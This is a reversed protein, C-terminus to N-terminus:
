AAVRGFRRRYDSPSIGAKRQFLERFFAPDLYGVRQGIEVLEQRLPLIVVGGLEGREGASQDAVGAVIRDAVVFALLQWSRRLVVAPYRVDEEPQVVLQDDEVM